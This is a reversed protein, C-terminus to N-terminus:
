ESTPIPVSVPTNLPGNPQFAVAILKKDKWQVLTGDTLPENSLMVRITAQEDELCLVYKGGEKKAAETSLAVSSVARYLHGENLSGRPSIQGSYLM